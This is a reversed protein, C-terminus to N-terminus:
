RLSPGGVGPLDRSPGWSYGWMGVCTKEASKTRVWACESPGGPRDGIARPWARKVKSNKRSPSGSFFNCSTQLLIRDIRNLRPDPHWLLCSCHRVSTFIFSTAPSCGSSLRLSTSLSLYLHISPTPDHTPLTCRPLSLTKKKINQGKV